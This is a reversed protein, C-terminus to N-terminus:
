KDAGKKKTKPEVKRSPELPKVEEFRNEYGVPIESDKYQEGREYRRGAFKGSQPTFPSTNEKLKRM